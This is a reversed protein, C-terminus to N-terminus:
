SSAPSRGMTFLMRAGPRNSYRICGLDGSAVLRGITTRHCQLIGAAEELTLLQPVHTDDTSTTATNTM